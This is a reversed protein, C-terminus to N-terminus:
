RRESLSPQSESFFSQLVTLQGSRHLILNGSVPSRFRYSTLEIGVIHPTM